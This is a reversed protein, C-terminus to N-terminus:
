CAGSDRRTMDIKHGVKPLMELFSFPNNLLLHPFDIHVNAIPVDLDSAPSQFRRLLSCVFPCIQACPFSNVCVSLIYNTRNRALVKSISEEFTHKLAAIKDIWTSAPSQCTTGEGLMM